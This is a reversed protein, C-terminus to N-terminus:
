PEVVYSLDSFEIPLECIIKWFPLAFSIGLKLKNAIGYAILM